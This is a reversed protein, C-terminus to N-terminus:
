SALRFQIDKIVPKGFHGNLAKLLKEKRLKLEQFCAPSGVDVILRGHRVGVATVDKSLTGVEREWITFLAFNVENLGLRSLLKTIIEQSSTFNRM